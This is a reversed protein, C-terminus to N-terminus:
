LPGGVSRLYDATFVQYYCRDDVQHFICYKGRIRARMDTYDKIPGIAMLRNSNEILSRSDGM